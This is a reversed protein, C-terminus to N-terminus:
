RRGVTGTNGTHWALVWERDAESLKEIPVDILEGTEKQLKVVGNIFSVFAARITYKGTDDNWDRYHPEGMGAEQQAEFAAKTDGYEALIELLWKRAVDPKRQALFQRAIRLKSAAINERREREKKERELRNLEQRAQELREQELREQESVVTRAEKQYDTRYGTRYETRPTVSPFYYSSSGSYSSGSGPASRTHPRVYTGDKRYYGRVNVRKGALAPTAFTLLILTLLLIARTM